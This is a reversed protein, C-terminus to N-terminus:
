TAKKNTDTDTSYSYVDYYGSYGEGYYLSAKKMRRCDFSSRISNNLAELLFACLVGLMM